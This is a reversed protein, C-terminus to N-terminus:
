RRGGFFARRIFDREPVQRLEFAAFLAADDYPIARHELTYSGNRYTVVAYRAAPETHCGLSGPNVYHGRGRLDFFNHNHGFFNLTATGPEFNFVNDLDAATPTKFFQAFKRGSADLPYHVFATEVGHFDKKLYNPWRALVTRLAPDLQAHTWNQHQAEGDSIHPPRPVPLGEAFYQDHNGMVFQANPLNLLVDLCEAPFPGIAIADGTHFLADYGEARIAAIAAQLAPLNAHVDTMVVIKM